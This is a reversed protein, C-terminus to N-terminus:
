NTLLILFSSSCMTWGLSSLSKKTGSMTFNEYYSICCCAVVHILMLLTNIMQCIWVYPSFMVELASSRSCKPHPIGMKGHLLNWDCVENTLPPQNCVCSFTQLTCVALLVFFSTSFRKTLDLSVGFTIFSPVVSMTMILLDTSSYVDESELWVYSLSWLM